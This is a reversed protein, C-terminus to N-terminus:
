KSWTSCASSAITVQLSSENGGFFVLTALAAFSDLEFPELADLSETANSMLASSELRPDLGESPGGSAAALADPPATLTPATIGGFALALAVYLTLLLLASGLVTVALAM